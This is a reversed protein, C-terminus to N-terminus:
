TVWILRSGVGFGVSGSATSFRWSFSSVTVVTDSAGNASEPVPAVGSGSVSRSWPMTPHSLWSSGDIGRFKGLARLHIRILWTDAIVKMEGKAVVM